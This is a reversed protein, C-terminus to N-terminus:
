IDKSREYNLPDEAGAERFGKLRYYCSDCKGCPRKGGEYCSWTLYYPIGLKIGLSIIQAKTKYILPTAIKIEKGIKTGLNKVKNFAEFFGPRCDPYGSYDETHAGIFIRSAGISEAFSLAYSLFITNRAPVYTSPISKLRKHPIRIKKDLLASGKWPFRIELLAFPNKAKRAIKKASDIERRNRQGYDFILAFCKYGQKKAIYLSTASDIGGSLLVVASKKM